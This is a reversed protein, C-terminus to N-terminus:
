ELITDVEFSWDGVIQSLKLCGNSTKVTISDNEVNLIKGNTDTNKFGLDSFESQHIIIKKTNYYTFAGPYPHAQARIWNRIRNKEWNWDIRGDEPTRKGFYTAKQHNQPILEYSNNEISELVELVFSPYLNKYKELVIAGTDNIKISVKKQAIIEGTDCGGDIKHATIGTETEGNIIAWVHPTRGRYQPLLSGHFNIAIKSPLSILDNEILFLYNVSILVDCSINGLSTLVRSNRPNGSYTLISREQCFRIISESKKDTLVFNIQYCKQLTQLLIFGLHGSVMVGLTM